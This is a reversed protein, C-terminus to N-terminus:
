ERTFFFEGCKEGTGERIMNGTCQLPSGQDFKCSLMLGDKEPPVTSLLRCGYCYNGPAILYASVDEALTSKSLIFSVQAQSKSGFYPSKTLSDIIMRIEKPKRTTCRDYVVKGLWSSGPEIPSECVEEDKGNKCDKSKDCVALLSICQPDSGGCQFENKGCGDGFKNHLALDYKEIEGESKRIAGTKTELKERLSELRAALKNLHIEQSDLRARLASCIAVLAALILLHKM